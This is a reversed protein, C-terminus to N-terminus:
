VWSKLLPSPVALSSTLSFLHISTACDIFSYSLWAHLLLLLLPFATTPPPPLWGVSFLPQNASNQWPDKKRKSFILLRLFFFTSQTAPLWLLAFYGAVRFIRTFLYYNGCALPLWLQPLPTNTKAVGCVRHSSYVHSSFLFQLNVWFRDSIPIEEASPGGNWRGAGDIRNLGLCPWKYLANIM